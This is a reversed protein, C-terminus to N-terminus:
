QQAAKPFPKLRPGTQANQVGQFKDVSHKSGFCSGNGCLKSEEWNQCVQDRERIVQEDNQQRRGEVQEVEGETGEVGDIRVLHSSSQM